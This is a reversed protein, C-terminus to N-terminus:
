KSKKFMLFYNDTMIGKEEKVLEFGCNKIETVVTEKGARVHGLIFQSSEGEIREFDVVVVRGDDKLARRISKMTKEPFEFHHYTACIYAIDISKEPLDCSDSSCIVGVINNIKKQRAQKVIRYVFSSTIDVSFVRGDNGVVQSFVNTFLGTGAGIDAVVSGKKIGTLKAIQARKDYVERGEREWREVWQSPNGKLFGDNIGPRVSKEQANTTTLNWSALSLLLAPFLNRWLILSRIM